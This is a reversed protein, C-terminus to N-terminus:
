SPLMEKFVQHHSSSTKNVLLVCRYIYIFFLEYSSFLATLIVIDTSYWLYGWIKGHEKFLWFYLMCCVRVFQLLIFMYSPSEKEPTFIIVYQLYNWWLFSHLNWRHTLHHSHITHGFTPQSTNWLSLTLKVQDWRCWPKVKREERSKHRECKRLGCM